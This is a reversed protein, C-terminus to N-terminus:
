SSQVQALLYPTLVYSLVGRGFQTYWVEPDRNIMATQWHRPLRRAKRLTQLALALREEQMLAAAVQSWCAMEAPLATSTEICSLPQLIADLLQSLARHQYSTSLYLRSRAQAAADRDQRRGLRLERRELKALETPSQAPVRDRLLSVRRKLAEAVRLRDPRARWDFRDTYLLVWAGSVARPPDLLELKTAPEAPDPGAAALTLDKNASAALAAAPAVLFSWLSVLAACAITARVGSGTRVARLWRDANSVPSARGFSYGQVMRGLKCYEAMGFCSVDGMSKLLSCGPESPGSAPTRM